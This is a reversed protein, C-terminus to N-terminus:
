ADTRRRTFRQRVRHYRDHVFIRAEDDGAAHRDAAREAETVTAHSSLPAADAERRVVWAGDPTPAVHLATTVARM